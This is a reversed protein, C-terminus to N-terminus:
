LDRDVIFRNGESHRGDYASTGLGLYAQPKRKGDGGGDTTTPSAASDGAAGGAGAAGAGGAGVSAGPSAAGAGAAPASSALAGFVGAATPSLAPKGGLASRSKPKRVALFQGREAADRREEATVPAADLFQLRPLRFIVYLRYRAAAAVDAESVSVLPPSAPNRMASLYTVNPFSAVVEDMFEVLDTM